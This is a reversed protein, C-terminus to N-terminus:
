AAEAILDSPVPPSPTLEVSAKQNWACWLDALLQKEMYRLARARIHGESRFEAIRKKPISASPAVILGEAKAKAIQRKKEARYLKSYYGNQKEIAAGIVFMVSRRRPSYGQKVWESKIQDRTKGTTNVRGQRQGDLVALCMRKWVRSVTHYGFIPKSRDTWEGYDTLDGTEALIRALSILGDKFVKIRWWDLVPVPVRLMMAEMNAAAAEEEKLFPARGNLTAMIIPTWQEFVADNLEKPQALSKYPKPKGKRDLHKQFRVADKERWALIKEGTGILRAAREAIADREAKPKKLTWGLQSRLFSGLALHARKRQEMAYRNIRNFKILTEFFEEDCQM